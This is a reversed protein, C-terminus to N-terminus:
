KVFLAFDIHEWTNSPAFYVRAKGAAQVEMLQAAQAMGITEPDLIHVEGAALAAIAQEPTNLFRVVINPTAPLGQYYFPNAAFVMRQGNVWGKLVYPGVGLPIHNVEELFAWQDAPVDALKRGDSLRQHAPLRTFPPLFYLPDQHGPKWRVVYATDSVFEVRAITDCAHSGRWAAAGWEPDCNIRYGLEYDAKSVPTGDSWTLGDVFEYQVVLQKMPIAGGMFEVENGDADLIRVGPKLEVANGDADVIGEGERVEVLNNTAAGSELTPMHKLMVPQYVNGRNTHDVGTVLIRLVKSVYAVELVFLSAPEGAEGIVITDEGPLVWQAANWTYYLDSPDPVINQLAPNIALVVGLRSFLPLTPLDKTFEAQVIRYAERRVDWSVSSTATRIAADARPNCWGTFNQGQWNNDPSPIQDCAFLARGGPDSEIVWAFAALEFDRRVLGTTDGFFWSAPVHFRVIRLGCAEMQREFVAAWTQRFQADTTTLKLALEEGAANIRYTAGQALTWGAAELLATGRESDFPYRALGPDDQPYAWHDRRVFSDMEFPAPDDLWPYVSRILETRNTCHAIGQRVRLDSLIPHPTTIFSPIPSAEPQTPTSAVPVIRTQEVVVTVPVQIISPQCAALTVLLILGLVAKLSTYSRM